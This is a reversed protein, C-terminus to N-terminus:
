DSVAAFQFQLKSESFQPPKIIHNGHFGNVGTIQCLSVSKKFAQVLTGAFGVLSNGFRYALDDAGYFGAAILRNFVIRQFKVAAQRLVVFYRSIDDVIRQGICIRCKYISHQVGDFVDTIEVLALHLLAKDVCQWVTYNQSLTNTTQLTNTQIYGPPVAAYGDLTMMFATGAFIAPTFSIM